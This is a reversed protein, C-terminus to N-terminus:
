FLPYSVLRATESDRDHLIRIRNIKYLERAQVPIDSAPYNLGKWLTLLCWLVSLRRVEIYTVLLQLISYSLRLVAMRRLM